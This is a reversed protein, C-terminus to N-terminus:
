LSSSELKRAFKEFEERTFWEETLQLTWCIARLFFYDSFKWFYVFNNNWWKCLLSIWWSLYYRPLKRLVPAYLLSCIYRMRWWKNATAGAFPTLMPCLNFNLSSLPSSFYLNHWSPYFKGQSSSFSHRNYLKRRTEEWINQIYWFCVQWYMIKTLLM